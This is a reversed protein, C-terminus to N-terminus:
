PNRSRNLKLLREAVDIMSPRQDADLNLCEVVIKALSHLLELNSTQAIENDFLEDVRKEKYAELFNRALSNNDYCAAKKRSILELIVVGFSYVDSKETLLRTQMYVAPDVYSWDDIANDAQKDRAFLRLVGLNSIKPMFNDDLLINAPKVNGHIIKNNTKSHMYALGDALQAAISLRVNINLPSVKKSGHLIDELSGKPLYEYVLIPTDVELCCGILKVINKHIVQSQIIIENAFQENNEQAGGSKLRKVAVQKNDLFGKYVEGFGKGGVLNKSKLIEKLEKKKFLKIAKAKELIPGGNREYFERM